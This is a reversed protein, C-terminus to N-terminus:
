SVPIEMLTTKFHRCFTHLKDYKDYKSPEHHWSVVKSQDIMVLSADFSRTLSTQQIPPCDCFIGKISFYKSEVFEWRRKERQM